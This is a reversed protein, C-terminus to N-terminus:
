AALHRVKRLDKCFKTGLLNALMKRMWFGYCKDPTEPVISYAAPVKTPGILRAFATLIKFLGCYDPPYIKFTKSAFFLARAESRIAKCTQAIALPHSAAIPDSRDGTRDRFFGIFKTRKKSIPDRTTWEQTIRYNPCLVITHPQQLVLRYIENRLEPPLRGFPSQDM